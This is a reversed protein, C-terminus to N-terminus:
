FKLSIYRVLLNIHSFINNWGATHLLACLHTKGTENGTSKNSGGFGSKPIPFWFQHGIKTNTDSGIKKKRM